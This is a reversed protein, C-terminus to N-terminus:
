ASMDPQQPLTVQLPTGTDVIHTVWSQLAPGVFGRSYHYHAAFLRALSWQSLADEAKGNYMFQSGTSSHRLRIIDRLTEADFPGCEIVGLARETIPRLRSLLHFAESNMSLVLLCQAKK